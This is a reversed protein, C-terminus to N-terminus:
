DGRAPQGTASGPTEFTRPAWKRIPDDTEEMWGLLEGQLREIADACAPDDIRNDLEHPDAKLDYFEDVDPGNYVYKYRGQRVMRQSYLGFEDGHYEAFLSEPWDDPYEDTLLPRISRGEVGDPVPVGALDLFTPMLDLLNVFEYSRAGAEAAGPWRVVLPIAHIEEYMMPGKNFQGHSGTFDGHDATHVVATDEALGERDLADLVRGIQEDLYTVFGFYNSVAEAWTEWEFDAVGRYRVFQEQARPKDAFDDDFNAWPDIEDPDYMSAYPEPVEYPHHPGPFDLRLHFPGGDGAAEIAEIAEETLYNTVTGREPLTTKASVLVGNDTYIEDYLEADAPDVGKERQFARFDENAPDHHDDEAAVTEFGYDAPTGERGVHWKGVYMNRYGAAALREGYTEMSGPLDPRIADAEHCNNVMGHSHPYRGTLLSARAPSCISTPTYANEFRVGERSLRDINPTAVADNGPRSLDYREQDSLLVVINPRTEDVPNWRGSGNM